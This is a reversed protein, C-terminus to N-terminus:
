KTPENKFIVIKGFIGEKDMVAKMEYSIRIGCDYKALVSHIEELCKKAIEEPAESKQKLAKGKM